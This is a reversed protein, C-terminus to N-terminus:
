HCSGRVHFSAGYHTRIPSFLLICVITTIRGVETRSNIAFSETARKEAALKDSHFQKVRDKLAVIEDKLRKNELQASHITTEAIHLEHLIHQREHAQKM